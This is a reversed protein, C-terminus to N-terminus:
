KSKWVVTSDIPIGDKYTIELTTNGRYVDIAEPRQVYIIILVLATFALVLSLWIIIIHDSESVDNHGFSAISLVLVLISTFTFIAIEM